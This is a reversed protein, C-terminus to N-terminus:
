RRLANAGPGSSGRRLFNVPLVTRDPAMEGNIRRILTNVAFAGMQSIPQAVTSIDCYESINVGDFGVVALREPCEKLGRLSTVLKAALVDSTAFVGDVQPSGEFIATLNDPLGEAFLDEDNLYYNRSDLGLRACEEEFGMYRLGAPMMHGKVRNGLLLVHKCGSAALEQAALVGGKYNDCSVSPVDAINREISVLPFDSKLYGEAKEIRSCVMVGAVNNARLMSFHEKERQASNGSACLLLKYGERYCAQEVADTLMGFFPHNIYPVILGLLHSNRNSLSRAMENPFYDLEKMAQFVREKTKESISGRDNLVRSVTTISVGIKAAVDKLTAMNM